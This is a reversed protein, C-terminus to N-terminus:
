GADGYKTQWEGNENLPSTFTYVLNTNKDPDDATPALNVLDTEQAVIVIPKEKSKEIIVEEPETEEEKTVKGTVEPEEMAEEPKEEMVEEVEVFVDQEPLGADIHNVFKIPVEFKTANSSPEPLLFFIQVHSNLGFDGPSAGHTEGDSHYAVAIASAAEKTSAELPKLKLSFSGSGKEDSKLSNESGDEAGCPADVINFDPPFTIRSCWVTYVGNPVLNKFSLELEANGDDVSYIGIGSGALWQGLAFGLEQGKDFPGLPNAGTKFPDHVTPAAAAYAKKALNAPDKAGEGEVRVVKGVSEQPAAEKPAAGYLTQYVECSSLLFVSIIMLVLFKTKFNM